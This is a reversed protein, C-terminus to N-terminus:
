SRDFNLLNIRKAIERTTIQRNAGILAKITDEDAKLQGELVRHMKLMLSAPDFNQLGTKASANTRDICRRQVCRIIKEQKFLM